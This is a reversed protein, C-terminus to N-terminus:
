LDKLAKELNEHEANMKKEFINKRRRFANSRDREMIIAIQTDSLDLLCLCCFFIDKDNLLPFKNKLRNTYNGLLTDVDQLFKLQDSKEFHEQHENYKEYYAIIRQMKVLYDKGNIEKKFLEFDLAKQHYDESHQNPVPSDINNKKRKNRRQTFILSITAGVVLAGVVTWSYYTYLKSHKQQIEIKKVAVAIETKQQLQTWKDHFMSRQEEWKLAKEFDKQKRAIDALRMCAGEKIAYNDTPLSQKCYFTASDYQEAKYFADGLLLHIRPLETSDSRHLRYLEKAFSLAKPPNKMRSYLTSLTATATSQKHKLNAKKAIDYAQLLKKEAQLYFEKGLSINYIGRRILSGSLLLSDKIEAALQETLQYVSDAESDFGQNQYLYAINNYAKGLLKENSNQKALQIANHYAKIAKDYQRMDSFTCGQNYYAKALMPVDQNQSYYSIAEQILSDSTLKIYNKYKAQTILVAYYATDAKSNFQKIDINQLINLASDPKSLMLSDARVLLDNYDTQNTCAAILLLLISLFSSHPKM